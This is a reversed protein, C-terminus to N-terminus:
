HKPRLFQIFLFTGIVTLLGWILSFGGMSYSRGFRHMPGIEFWVTYWWNPFWHVNEYWPYLLLNTDHSILDFGIHSLVGILVSFSWLRLPVGNRGGAGTSPSTPASKMFFTQLCQAVDGDRFLRSAFNALLWTIFLGGFLDLTFVGILAHGYWQRFYGHIPFSLISDTIDPMAAGVSLALADFSNPWRRVVPLILGQHAPFTMPM